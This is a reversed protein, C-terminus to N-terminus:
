LKKFENKISREMFDMSENLAPILYARGHKGFEQARAYDVDTGVIAMFPSNPVSLNTVREGGFSAVGTMETKGKMAIAVSTRLRGTQFKVKQQALKKVELSTKAVTTKAAEESAEILKNLNRIVEEQGEIRIRAGYTDSM